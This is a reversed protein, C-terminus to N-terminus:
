LIGNEEKYVEDYIKKFSKYWPHLPTMYHLDRFYNDLTENIIEIGYYLKISKLNNNNLIL